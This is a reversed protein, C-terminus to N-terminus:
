GKEVSISAESSIADNYGTQRIFDMIAIKPILYRVGNRISPIRNDALYQYVKNRGIRLLEGVQQPTLIDPYDDINMTIHEKVDRTM